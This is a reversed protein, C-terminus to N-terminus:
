GLMQLIIGATMSVLFLTKLIFWNDDRNINNRLLVLLGLGGGASLGAIVSGFGIVGKIYLMAILVSIACNPILGVFAMIIPQLTPSQLVFNNLVFGELLYNLIVCILFIFLFIHLTHKIPHLIISSIKKKEIDHDCCGKENLILNQAYYENGIEKRNRLLYDVGYGVGIGLVLKVFIIKIITGFQSPESLLIPIAEDSTAIFVAILTGTSIFRKIYLTAAIVSFGCQPITALLSGLVPGLKKSYKLFSDIKKSFYNESIEIFLFIIFLFPVLKISDAFADTFFPPLINLINRISEM